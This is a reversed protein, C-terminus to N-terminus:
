RDNTHGKTMAEVEQMLAEFVDSTYPILDRQEALRHAANATTDHAKRKSELGGRHSAQWQEAEWVAYFYEDGCLSMHHLDDETTQHWDDPCFGGM